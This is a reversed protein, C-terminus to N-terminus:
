RKMDVSLRAPAGATVTVRDRREGLTPHRFVVEHVGVPVALNALPTNGVKRDGIWVEAWPLANVSVTGDPLQATLTVTSGDKIEVAHRQNVGFRESTLTLAHRGAPMMIRDSRTTGVVRGDEMVTLEIPSAISLWGSGQRSAPPPPAPAPAAPLFVVALQTLRGPEVRITRTWQRAGSALVVDHEGPELDALTLPTKGVAEGDVSVLAGAPDSGVEVAGPAIAPPAAAVTAPTDGAAQVPAVVGPAPRVLLAAIVGGQALVLLALGAAWARPSRLSGASSAPSKAGPSSAAMNDTTAVARAAPPAPPDAPGAAVGPDDTVLMRDLASLDVNARRTAAAADLRADMEDPRPQM